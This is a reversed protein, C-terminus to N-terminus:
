QPAAWALGPLGAHALLRRRAQDELHTAHLLARTLAPRMSRLLMSSTTLSCLFCRKRYFICM